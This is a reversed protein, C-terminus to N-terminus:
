EEPTDINRIDLELQRAVGSQIEYRGIKSVFNDAAWEYDLYAEHALAACDNIAEKRIQKAFKEVYNLEDDSAHRTMLGALFKQYKDRNDTM